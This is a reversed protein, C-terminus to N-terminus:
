QGEGGELEKIRQPVSEKLYNVIRPDTTTDTSLLELSKKWAQLAGDRDGAALSVEAFSDWANPSKPYAVTGWELVVLGSTADGRQYFQYGLGNYINEDLVPEAETPLGFQDLVEKAKTVGQSQIIAILEDVSPPRSEAATHTM